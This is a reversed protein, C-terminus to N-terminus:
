ASDEGELGLRGQGAAELEEASPETRRRTRRLYEEDRALAEVKHRVFIRRCGLWISPLTGRNCLRHVAVESIGLIDAAKKADILHEM